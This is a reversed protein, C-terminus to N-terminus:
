GGPEGDSRVRVRRAKGWGSGRLYHRYGHDYQVIGRRCPRLEPREMRDILWAILVPDGIVGAGIIALRYADPHRALESHWDIASAHPLRRMATKLADDPWPFDNRVFSKLLTASDTDGLLAASWAASYRCFDDKAHLNDQIFTLLNKKGIEGVSLLARARIIPHETGSPM